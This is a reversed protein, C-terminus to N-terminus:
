CSELSHNYKVTRDMSDFTVFSQIVWPKVIPTLPKICLTIRIAEAKVSLHLTSNLAMGDALRLSADGVLRQM